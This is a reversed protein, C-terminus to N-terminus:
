CATNQFALSHPLRDRVPPCLCAIGGSLDDNFERTVARRHFPPKMGHSPDPPPPPRRDAPPQPVGWGYQKHSEEVDRKLRPARSKPLRGGKWPRGNSLGPRRPPATGPQSGCGSGLVWAAAQGSGAAATPSPVSPASAPAGASRPSGGPRRPPAPAFDLDRPAKAALQHALYREKRRWSSEHVMRHKNEQAFVERLLAASQNSAGGAQLM